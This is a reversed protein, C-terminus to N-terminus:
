PATAYEQITDALVCGAEADDSGFVDVEDSVALDAFTGEVTESASASETIRLYRTSADTKVCLGAPGGSVDVTLRRTAADADDDAPITAITAGTIAHAPTTDQDLVILASKLPEGSTAPDTIVGDVAGTTGPQLAASTLEENSGLAFIRTGSQLLVDIANSADDAPTTDFVFIDNNGPASVVTGPLRAFTGAAGLEIVQADLRLDDARSDGDDGDHLGLFGIATLLDGDAIADLGVRTGTEDFIGTDGDTFVDVCERSDNSRRDEDPDVSSVAGNPCLEFGGSGLDRVTGFIRVLKTEDPSVTVFVVPRFQWKGNGTQHLHLSKKMDLDLEIVLAEGGVVQVSGRPVLDLKGNGPLKPRDWQSEPDPVGAADCEILALDSLTLRIKNFSGAPVEANLAFADTYNRLALVDVTEPGTFVNARSSGGLLDISEVTARIQCFRDIPADTILISVRGTAPQQTGVTPPANAGDSGGGGCSAIALFSGALIVARTFTKMAPTESRRSQPRM